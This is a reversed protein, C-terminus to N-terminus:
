VTLISCFLSLNDKYNNLNIVTSNKEIIEIRCNAESPIEILQNFQPLQPEGIVKSNYSGPTNITIFEQSNNEIENISVDGLPFAIKGCKVSGSM